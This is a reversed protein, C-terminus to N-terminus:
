LESMFSFRIFILLLQSNTWYFIYFSLYLLTYNKLM